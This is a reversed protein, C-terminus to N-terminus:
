EAVNSNGSLRRQGTPALQLRFGTVPLNALDMKLPFNIFAIDSMVEVSISRLRGSLSVHLPKFFM